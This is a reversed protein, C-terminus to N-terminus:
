AARLSTLACRYDDAPLRARDESLLRAKLWERHLPRGPSGLPRRGPRIQHSSCTGKRGAVFETTRVLKHPRARRVRRRTRSHRIPHRPRDDHRHSQVSISAPRHRLQSRLQPSGTQRDVSGVQFHNIAVVVCSAQLKTAARSVATKSSPWLRRPWPARSSKAPRHVQSAKAPCAKSRASRAIPAASRAAEFRADCSRPRVAPSRAKNLDAFTSENAAPPPSHETGRCNVDCPRRRRPWLVAAL